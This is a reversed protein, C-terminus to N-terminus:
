KLISLIIRTNVARIRFTGNLPIQSTAAGGGTYGNPLNETRVVAGTNDLVEFVAGGSYNFTGDTNTPGEVFLTAAKVVGAPPAYSQIGNPDLTLVEWASTAEDGITQPDTPTGQVTYPTQFYQDTFTGLSTTEVTTGDASKGVCLAEVYSVLVSLDGNVDDVWARCVISDSGGGTQECPVFDVGEVVTAGTTNRIFTFTMTAEDYVSRVFFLDTTDAPNCALFVTGDSQPNSTPTGGTGGSACAAKEAAIEALFTNIDTAGINAADTNSLYIAEYLGNCQIKLNGSTSLGVKIDSLELVKHITGGQTLTLVCGAITYGDYNTLACNSSM